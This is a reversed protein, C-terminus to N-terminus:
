RDLNFVDELMQKFATDSTLLKGDFVIQRYSMFFFGPIKTIMGLINAEYPLSCPQNVVFNVCLKAPTKTDM